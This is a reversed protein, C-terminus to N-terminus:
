EEGQLLRLAVALREADPAARHEAPVRRRAESLAAEVVPCPPIGQGPWGHDARVRAEEWWCEVAWRPRRRAAAYLTQIWGADAVQDTSVVVAGDIFDDLEAAVEEVPVGDTLLDDLAIGHVDASAKSWHWEARDLWEETPRILWSQTEGTAVDCLAIEIPFTGPGLGSAEVDVTLVRDSLNM